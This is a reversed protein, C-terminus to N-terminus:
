LITKTQLLVFENKAFYFQQKFKNAEIFSTKNVLFTRHNYTENLLNTLFVLISILCLVNSLKVTYEHSSM